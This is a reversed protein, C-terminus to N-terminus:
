SELGVTKKIQAIEVEHRDLRDNLSTYGDLVFKNRANQEEVLLGIRHIESLIKEFKSDQQHFKSHVEDFRANVEDFRADIENFRADIENFRAEMKNFRADVKSFRSDMKKDLASIDHKLESRVELLMEQIVPIQQSKKPKHSVRVKKTKKKSKKVSKSMVSKIMHLPTGCHRRGVPRSKFLFPGSKPCKDPLVRCYRIWLSKPM